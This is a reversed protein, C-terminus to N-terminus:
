FASRAAAPIEIEVVSYLARMSENEIPQHPENAVAFDIRSIDIGGNQLATRLADLRGQANQGRFDRSVLRIRDVKQLVAAVTPVPDPGYLPYRGSRRLFTHLAASEAASKPAAPRRTPPAGCREGFWSEGYNYGIPEEHWKIASLKRGDPSLTVLAHGWQPGQAWAFRYVAGDRGGDLVIPEGVHREVTGGTATLAGPQENVTWCGALDPVSPTELFRGRAHVSTLTAFRLGETPTITMRIYRATVAPQLPVLQLELSPEFRQMKLANFQKGDMSTEILAERVAFVGPQTRIGFQEISAPAPLGFVLTQQPDDPPSNWPTTVDGDIARIASNDLSLEATRSVVSAGVGINLLNVREEPSDRQIPPRPPPQPAPEERCAAM